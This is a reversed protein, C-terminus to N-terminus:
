IAKFARYVRLAKYVRSDMLVRLVKFAKFDRSDM